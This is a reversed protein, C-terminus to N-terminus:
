NRGRWGRRRVAFRYYYGAMWRLTAKGQLWQGLPILNRLPHQSQCMTVPISRAFAAMGSFSSGFTGVLCDTQRLLWLDVVADQIALPDRRDLSRPRTFVVRDGYRQRFGAHVGETPITKGSASHLAGDDSCLLIGADRLDVLYRDVVDIACRTNAAVLPAALQLDGRRLHVGIMHRRFNAAQFEDIREQITRVPKLEEFLEGCRAFLQRHRPFRDPALLWTCSWARLDAVDSAQLDPLPGRPRYQRRYYEVDVPSADLVPWANAFLESFLAACAHTRAWLMEFRRDTAEALAMGSLLVPLRNCLGWSAAVSLTNSVTANM